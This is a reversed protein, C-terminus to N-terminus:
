EVVGISLERSGLGVQTVEITGWTQIVYTVRVLGDFPYMREPAWIPSVLSVHLISVFRVWLNSQIQGIQLDRPSRGGLDLVRFQFVWFGLGQVNFGLGMLPVFM